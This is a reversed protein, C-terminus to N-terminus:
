RTLMMEICIIPVTLKGVTGNNGIIFTINEYLQLIINWVGNSVEFLRVRPIDYFLPM